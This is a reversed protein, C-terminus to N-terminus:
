VNATDSHEIVSQFLDDWGVKTGRSLGMGKFADMIRERSQEAPNEKGAIWMSVTWRSVGVQEALWGKGVNRRALLILVTKPRLYVKIRM